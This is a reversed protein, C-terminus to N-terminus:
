AEQLLRLRRQLQISGERILLNIWGNTSFSPSFDVEEEYATRLRSSFDLMEDSVYITLQNTRNKM